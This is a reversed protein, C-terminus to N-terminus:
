QHVGQELIDAIKCLEEVTADGEVTMSAALSRLRSVIQARERDLSSVLSAEGTINGERACQVFFSLYNIADFADDLADKHLAPEGNGHWWAEMLREVKRAANLLNSLAGFRRWVLGYSATRHLMVSAAEDLTQAHKVAAQAHEPDLLLLARQEEETHYHM